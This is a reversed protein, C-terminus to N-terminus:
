DKIRDKECSAFIYFLLAFIGLIIFLNTMAAVRIDNEKLELSLKKRSLEIEKDLSYKSEDIENLEKELILIESSIDELEEYHFGIFPPYIKHSLINDVKKDPLMFFLVIIIGHIVVLIASTVWVLKLIKTKM